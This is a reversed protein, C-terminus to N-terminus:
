ARLFLLTLHFRKHFAYPANMSHRSRENHIARREPTLRQYYTKSISAAASRCHSHRGDKGRNHVAFFRYQSQRIANRVAGNTTEM